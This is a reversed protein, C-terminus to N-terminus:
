NINHKELFEHIHIGDKIHVWGDTIDRIIFGDENTYKDYIDIFIYKHEQCKENLSKNFYLYALKREEDSGVYPTDIGPCDSERSPPPVNYVCVNKLNVKLKDLNVKIANFYNNILRDIVDKYTQSENVHKYVHCRCDIEGFSFVLTDGDELDFKSVDVLEFGKTGFSNCIVAGMHHHKVGEPWGNKKCNDGFGINIDSQCTEGAHSDGFTHIAM